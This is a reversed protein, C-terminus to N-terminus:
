VIKGRLSNLFGNNIKVKVLQGINGVGSKFNVVKNSITRGSLQGGLKSNGEVLVEVETNELQKNRKLTIGKQLSQLIALRRTKESEEIKGGMKEALTGKRDSYKFSFLSDFQVKEILDLTRQFDDETEGPFGVMVDSTIAIYPAVERLKQVLKMYTEHTYGRKMYQLIRNSGSQFPLHIHPCLKDLKAFCQILKDSLDKPHSTTFRLRMLGEVRNIDSLLDAFDWYRKENWMYSNVNQGLLTVEKVGQSVLNKVEDLIQEPSRCIERGRVYPVICYSCFNDCGQMISVYSSITRAFYNNAHVSTPPHVDLGTASIKQRGKGIEKVFNLFNGIERPGM